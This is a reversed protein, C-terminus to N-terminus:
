GVAESLLGWAAAVVAPVQANGYPRLQDVVGPLGYVVSCPEPQVSWLSALRGAECAGGLHVGALWAESSATRSARVFGGDSNAVLFLRARSHPAGLACASFVGWRADFGMSALDAFIRRAYGHVLIAPVNELFAYRPRVQRITEATEPWANREDAAGLRKGANSFPQCPFGGSVVDVMGQYSRAYGESIFSRIDGFIPAEDLIGDAIRQAIVRQCYDDIEVYGVTTWGLLKSGLLGGGCGTFLSLERM